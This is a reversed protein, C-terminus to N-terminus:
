SKQSRHERRKEGNAAAKATAQHYVFSLYQALFHNPQILIKYESTNPVEAVQIQSTELMDVMPNEWPMDFFLNKM